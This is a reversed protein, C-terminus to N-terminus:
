MIRAFAMPCVDITYSLQGVGVDNVTTYMLSFSINDSDLTYTQVKYFAGVLQELTHSKNVTINGANRYVNEDYVSITSPTADERVVYYRYEIEIQSTLDKLAMYVLLNLYTVTLQGPNITDEDEQPPQFEFPFPYWKVYVGNELTYLPENNKILPIGNVTPNYLRTKNANFESCRVIIAPCRFVNTTVFKRYDDIM